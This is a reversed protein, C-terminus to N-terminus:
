HRHADDHEGLRQAVLALGLMLAVQIQMSHVFLNDFLSHVTLHVLAGLSGLAVARWYGQAQSVAALVQVYCAGLLLLFALLGVTGAEAAINLYYNHAHGLPDLWRGLAYDGYVVPYNGIGVGLWPHDRWMTLAAEWHAMREIVAFNTDNVEATRVDLGSVYPLFGSARQVLSEPLYAVAGISLLYAAAVAVALTLLLASRSRTVTVAAVAAVIGIWGGRSWSMLAAISM